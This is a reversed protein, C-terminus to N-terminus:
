YRSTKAPFSHGRRMYCCAIWRMSYGFVDARSQGSFLYISSLATGKPISGAMKEDFEFQMVGFRNADQIVNWGPELAQMWVRDEVEAQPLGTYQVIESVIEHFTIPLHICQKNHQTNM